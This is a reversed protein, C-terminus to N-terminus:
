VHEEVIGTNEERRPVLESRLSVVHRDACVDETREEECLQKEGSERGWLVGLFATDDAGRGYGMVERWM